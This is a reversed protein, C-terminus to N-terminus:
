EKINKCMSEFKSSFEPNYKKLNIPKLEKNTFCHKTEGLLVVKGTKKDEVKYGITMRVGTYEKVFPYILITDEFTVHYKYTCNVGLVPITIGNEELIGFPMGVKELWFCRSEELFRIYNSHHVVGMRDTEYYNIKREYVVSM